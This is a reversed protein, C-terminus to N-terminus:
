YIVSDSPYALLVAFCQQTIFYYSELIMIKKFERIFGYQCGFVKLGMVKRRTLKNKMVMINSRSKLDRFMSNSLSHIKSAPVLTVIFLLLCNFLFIPFPVYEFFTLNGHFRITAFSSTIIIMGPMLLFWIPQLIWVFSNNYYKILIRIQQFRKIKTSVTLRGNEGFFKLWFSVPSIVAIINIAVVITLLSMACKSYNELLTFIIFLLKEAYDMDYKHFKKSFNAVLSYIYHPRNPAVHFM